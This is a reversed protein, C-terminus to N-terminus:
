HWRKKEWQMGFRGLEFHFRYIKGNFAIFVNPKRREVAWGNPSYNKVRKFGLM